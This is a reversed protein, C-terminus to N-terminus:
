PVFYAWAKEGVCFTQWHHYVSRSRFRKAEILMQSQNQWRLIEAQLRDKDTDSVLKPTEEQPDTKLDYEVIKDLDPWYIVKHTGEIFGRPSHTYWSSFYLRRASGVPELANRGEFEDEDFNLGILKLITPMVDLESCPRDIRLGPQIHGPWHIVWPVRIV